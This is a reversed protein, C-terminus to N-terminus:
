AAAIEEDYRDDDAWLVFEWSGGDRHDSSTHVRIDWREVKIGLASSIIAHFMPIFRETACQEWTATLPARVMIDLHLYEPHNQLVVITKRMGTSARSQGDLIAMIARNSWMPDTAFPNGMLPLQTMCMTEVGELDAPAVDGSSPPPPTGAATEESLSRANLAPIAASEGPVEQRHIGANLSIIVAEHQVSLLPTYYEPRARRDAELAAMDRQYQDRLDLLAATHADVMPVLQAVIPRAPRHFWPRTLPNATVQRTEQAAWAADKADGM